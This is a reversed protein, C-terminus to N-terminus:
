KTPKRRAELQPKVTHELCDPCVGHSFTAATRKAFYAEMSSWGGGDDRIRHCYSCTPLTSELRQVHDQLSLIRAAVRLRAALQDADLPKTLFDDAGADLAELCHHRETLSTLLIVYTYARGPAARIRRCLELGNVEPMMWDSIVVSFHAEQLHQWAAQGDEATFIAHGLGRLVTALLRRSALDDEAILIKV